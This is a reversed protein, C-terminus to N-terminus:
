NQNTGHPVANVVPALKFIHMIHYSPLIYKFTHSLECGSTLIYTYIMVDDFMTMYCWLLVIMVDDSCWTIVDNFCWLVLM